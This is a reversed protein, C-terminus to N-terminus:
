KICIWAKFQYSQWFVDYLKFGVDLLHKENESSKIPKMISRLRRQKELITKTNFTKEKFDYYCFTLIDQLRSDESFTKEAMIFAGGPNLNDYVRQLVPKRDKFPLFQLTFIATIFSANDLKLNTDTIDRNILHLNDSSQGKTLLNNSIDYGFFNVNELNTSILIKKLLLGTSCGLDYVNSKPTIFYTALSCVLGSLENYFPISQNIHEDFNEIQDFSFDKGETDM